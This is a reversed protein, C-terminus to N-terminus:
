RRNEELAAVLNLYEAIRVVDAQTLDAPLRLTIWLDPRLQFPYAVLGRTITTM